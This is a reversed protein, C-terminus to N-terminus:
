VGMSCTCGLSFSFHIVSASLQMVPSGGCFKMSYFSYLRGKGCGMDFRGNVSMNVDFCGEMKLVCRMVRGGGGRRLGFSKKHSSHGGSGLSGEPPLERM